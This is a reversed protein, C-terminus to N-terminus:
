NVKLRRCCVNMSAYFFFNRAFWKSRQVGFKPIAEISMIKTILSFSIDVRYIVCCFVYDYNRM